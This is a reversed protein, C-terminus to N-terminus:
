DILSNYYKWFDEKGNDLLAMREEWCYHKNDDDPDNGNNNEQEKLESLASNYIGDFFKIKEETTYEELLKIPRPKQM